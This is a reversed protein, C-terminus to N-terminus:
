TLAGGGIVVLGGRQRLEVRGVATWRLARWQSAAAAGGRGRQRGGGCGGVARQLSALSLSFFFLYIIFIFIVWRSMHGM